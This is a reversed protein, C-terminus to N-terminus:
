GPPLGLLDGLREVAGRFFEEHREVVNHTQGFLEFSVLGFLATWAQVARAAASTGPDTPLGVSEAAGPTLTADAGGTGPDVVGAALGDVVIRSLLVGVRSAPGMTTEPAAYGPVPSGYVLAYEHPHALAWDRVAGCVAHLRARLDVRPAAAETEEAAAGLADYADVILATLLDDRSPFYRYVASSAMGLERAVARLSLGAAGETALHRRATDAIERTLAARVRARTGAATM